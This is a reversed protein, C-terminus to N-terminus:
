RTVHEARGRSRRLLRDYTELTIDIVRQQDFEQSAKVRAARGMEERRGPDSALAGVAAALADADRPPILLGTRGDDVVQRCGRIATAIVPLGMASAEMAARPFGERHSPLAFVDMAGYLAVMDDRFGLFRVGHAKAREIDDESIGDAKEPEHPGVVVFRVPAERRALAEAAVVVEAMGKERVLRGVVGCLVEEDSAELQARLASREGADVRTPDFRTLDIGNGLLHLKHDPVGIRRLTELDESNQILEADSCWAAVRELGYVIARKALRDEPTAYLGHVTNVIVPVRAKKAALRGYVGPKPNHTHV